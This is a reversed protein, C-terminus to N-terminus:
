RGTPAPLAPEAAFAGGPPCEPPRVDQAMAMALTAALVFLVARM